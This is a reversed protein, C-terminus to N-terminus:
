QARRTQKQTLELFVEGKANKLMGTTECHDKDVFRNQVVFTQGDVPSNGMFTMTSKQEDWTGDVLWRTAGIMMVAPYSKTSPDYTVLLHLHPEDPNETQANEFLVFKGGLSWHRTESTKHTSEQGDRPKATVTFDWTGVFRDLVQLEPSRGAVDAAHAVVTFGPLTLLVLIPFILRM